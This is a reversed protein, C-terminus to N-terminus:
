PGTRPARPRRSPTRRRWPRRPGSRGSSGTGSPRRRARRRRELRRRDLPALGGLREPAADARQLRARRDLGPRAGDPRRQREARAPRLADLLDQARAVLEAALGLRRDADALQAGRAGLRRAGVALREVRRRDPARQQVVAARDAVRLEAGVAVEDVDGGVGRGPVPHAVGDVHQDGVVLPSARRQEVRELAVEGLPAAHDLARAGQEDVRVRQALPQRADLLQRADLQVVVVQKDSSSAILSALSCPRGPAGTRHRWPELGLEPPCSRVPRSRWWTARTGIRGTRTRTALARRTSVTRLRRAACRARWIGRPVGRQCRRRQGHPERACSSTAALYMGPRVPRPPHSRGFQISCGLGSPHASWASTVAPSVADLRLSAAYFARATSM